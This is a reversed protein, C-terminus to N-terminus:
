PQATRDARAHRGSGARGASPRQQGTTRTARPSVTVPFAPHPQATWRLVDRRAARLPPPTTYGWATRWWPTKPTHSCACSTPRCTPSQAATRRLLPHASTAARRLADPDALGDRVWEVNGGAFAGVTFDIAMRRTEGPAPRVSVALRVTEDPDVALREVLDAPLASQQGPALIERARVAGRRAAPDHHTALSALFSPM